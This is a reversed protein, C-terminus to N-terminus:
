KFPYFIEEDSAHGYQAVLMKKINDDSKGQAPKITCVMSAQKEMIEALKNQKEAEKQELFLLNTQLKFYICLLSICPQSVRLVFIARRFSSFCLHLTTTVFIIKSCYLQKEILAFLGLVFTSVM